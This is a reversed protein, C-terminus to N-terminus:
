FKLKLRLYSTGGKWEWRQPDLEMLSPVAQSLCSPCDLSRGFTSPSSLHPIYQFKFFALLSTILCWFGGGEPLNVPCAPSLSAIGKKLHFTERRGLLIRYHSQTHKLSCHERLNSPPGSIDDSDNSVSLRISYKWHCPLWYLLLNSMSSSFVDEM